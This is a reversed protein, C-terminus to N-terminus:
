PPQISSENKVCIITILPERYHFALYLNLCIFSFYCYVTLAMTKHASSQCITHCHRLYGADLDRSSIRENDLEGREEQMAEQGTQRMSAQWFLLIFAWFYVKFIVPSDPFWFEKWFTAPFYILKHQMQVVTSGFIFLRIDWINLNINPSKSGLSYFLFERLDCASYDLLLTWCYVYVCWM